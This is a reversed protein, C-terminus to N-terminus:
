TYVGYDLRGLHKEVLEVGTPTSLLDLPKMGNLALAPEGLFREAAEDSGLVDGAKAMIEAAKYLRGSQERSLRETAGAKEHRQLTRKSVGVVKDIANERGIAPFRRVFGVLTRSPFGQQIVEHAKLANSFPRDLAARGGLMDVVRDIGLDTTINAAHAM